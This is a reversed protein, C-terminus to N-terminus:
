EGKTPTFYTLIHTLIQRDHVTALIHDNAHTDSLQWYPQNAGNICVNTVFHDTTITKTKAPIITSDDICTFNLDSLMLCLETLLLIDYVRILLIDDHTHFGVHKINWYPKKTVISHEKEIIYKKKRAM